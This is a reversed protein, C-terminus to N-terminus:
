VNLEGILADNISAYVRDSVKALAEAKPGGTAIGVGVCSWAEGLLGVAERVGSISRASDEFVMVRGQQERLEQLPSLWTGRTAAEAAILSASELGTAAAGIAALAHVPSPKVLEDALIGNGLEEVLWQFSGFGIVPLHTLGVLHAGLEAEPAYGLRPEVERPVKCPRATYIASHEPVPRNLAKRDYELLASKSDITRAMGYTPEFAEGLVYQQFIAQVPSRRINRSHLLLDDIRLMWDRTELNNSVQSQVSRTSVPELLRWAAEAPYEGKRWEANVRRALEVYDPRQRTVLIEAVAIPASDWESTIGLAEIGEIEEETPALDGLGFQQSFYNITSILAARYGGPYLLVSDMDFLYLNLM